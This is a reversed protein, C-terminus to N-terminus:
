TWRVGHFSSEARESEVGLRTLEKAAVGLNVQRPLREVQQGGQQSAARLDQALLPPTVTVSRSGRCLVM